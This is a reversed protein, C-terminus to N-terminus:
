SKMKRIVKIVHGIGALVAAGALVLAAVAEAVAVSSQIATVVQPM